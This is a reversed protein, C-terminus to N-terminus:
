RLRFALDFLTTVLFSRLFMIVVCAIIPSVDFGSIPPLFRRFFALVPETIRCLFQVIPNYPDANVWSLAVRVFILWPALWLVADVMKALAIIFNSLVFM